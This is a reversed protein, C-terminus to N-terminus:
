IKRNGLKLVRENAKAMEEKRKYDNELAIELFYKQDLFREVKYFDRNKELEDLERKIIEDKVYNEKYEFNFIQLYEELAKLYDPSNNERLFTDIGKFNIIDHGYNISTLPKLIPDEGLYFRYTTTNKDELKIKRIDKSILLAGNIDVKTNGLNRSIKDTVLNFDSELYSINYLSLNGKNPLYFEKRIEM